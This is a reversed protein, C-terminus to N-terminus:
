SMKEKIKAHINECKKLGRPQIFFMDLKKQLHGRNQFTIIQPHDNIM